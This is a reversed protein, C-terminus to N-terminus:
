RSSVRVIAWIGLAVCAIGLAICLSGVVRAVRGTINREKSWPIGRPSFGQIGLYVAVFGIAFPTFINLM